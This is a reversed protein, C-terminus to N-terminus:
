PVSNSWSSSDGSEFGDTFINESMMQFLNPRYHELSCRTRRTQEVTFQDMCLDETYDMYNTYPDPSGCSEPDTPCGFRPSAEVPTDCLLDGDGYCGPPTASGCSGSPNFTHELGLYHGVEHTATRGQDYPVADADRGFASWLIVVRDSSDGVLTGGADAPLFPVYGLIGSPPQNTYINLYRHPDWALTNWYTGNDGFWTSNCTRTIGTAALGDPDETALVFTVQADTGNAGNSGALALFDENLIDIQSQVMADSIVGDTCTNDMIIHVVVPIELLAGPAYDSSPNTSSSSCDGPVPSSSSGFLMQRMERDPTGCRLENSRFYDSQVFASWSDFQHRDVVVGRGSASSGDSNASFAPHLSLGALLITAAVIPSSKRARSPKM